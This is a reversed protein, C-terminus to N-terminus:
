TINETTNFDESNLFAFYSEYGRRRRWRWRRWWRRRWWRRWRWWWWRIFIEPVILCWVQIVKEILFWISHYLKNQMIGATTTEEESETTTAAVTTTAAETTTAAATTTAVDNVLYWSISIAKQEHKYWLLLLNDDGILSTFSVNM